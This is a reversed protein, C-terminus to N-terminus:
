SAKSSTSFQRSAKGSYRRWVLRVLGAVIGLMAISVTTSKLVTWLSATSVMGVTLGEAGARLMSSVAMNELLDFIAALASLSILACVFWGRFLRNFSMALALGMLIPYATDLIHQPGLYFAQGTRGLAPVIQMATEHSYGTPRLDFMVLSGAFENLKSLSWLLMTLYVSLAAVLVGICDLTKHESKM